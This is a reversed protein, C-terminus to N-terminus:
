SNAEELIADLNELSHYYSGAFSSLSSLLTEFRQFLSACAAEDDKDCGGGNEHVLHLADDQLAKWQARPMALLDPRGASEPIAAELFTLPNNRGRARGQEHENLLEALQEVLEASITVAVFRGTVQEELVGSSAVIPGRPLKETAWRTFIRDLRQPYQVQKREEKAIVAPLGNLIDRLAHCVFRVYGPVKMHMLMTAGKFDEAFGSGGQDRLWAFIRERQAEWRFASVSSPPMAAIESIANPQQGSLNMLRMM